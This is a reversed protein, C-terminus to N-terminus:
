TAGHVLNLEQTLPSPLSAGGKGGVNQKQIQSKEVFDTFFFLTEQGGGTVALFACRILAM